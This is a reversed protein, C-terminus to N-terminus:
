IIITLIAKHLQKISVNKHKNLLRYELTNYPDETAICGGEYKAM